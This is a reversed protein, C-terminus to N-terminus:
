RSETTVTEPGKRVANILPDLAGHGLIGITSINNEIIVIDNHAVLKNLDERTLSRPDLGLPSMTLGRYLTARKFYGFFTIEEAIEYGLLFSNVTEMFSGGIALVRLPRLNKGEGSSVFDPYFYVDDLFCNDTFVNTLQYLDGDSYMPATKRNINYLKLSPLERQTLGAMRPVLTSSFLYAAYYSWHTGSKYFVPYQSTARTKNIFGQGDAYNVRHLDLLGILDAYNSGERGRGARVYKAPLQETMTQAKSPTLIFLFGKGKRALDDQLRRMQIVEKEIAAHTIRDANNLSTVYNRGFLSGGIGLVLGANEGRLPLERFLSYYLQNDTKILIGRFGLRRALSSDLDKALTGLLAAKVTVAPTRQIEVGHLLADPLMPHFTQLVVLAVIAGWFLLIGRIVIKDRM